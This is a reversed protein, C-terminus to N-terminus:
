TKRSEWAALVAKEKEPAIGAKLKMRENQPRGLHWALTDRVTREIDTIRLGAKLARSASTQAGAANEGVPPLWVPMDQWPAVSQQELFDNAIWVPKPKPEPKVLSNAASISTDVLQGITFKGPPSLVNYVGMTKQELLDLAFVALDRADIFQIPDSPSNPAIM